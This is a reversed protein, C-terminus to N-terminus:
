AAVQEATVEVPAPAPVPTIPLHAVLEVIADPIPIGRSNAYTAIKNQALPPLKITTLKKGQPDKPVPRPGRM